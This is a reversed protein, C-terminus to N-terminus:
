SSMGARPQRGTDGAPPSSAGAQHKATALLAFGAVVMLGDIVLPGVGAALQGYGWSLLVAHIHGYSIAASGLAVGVVGGYRALKWLLGSPWRVRSLAEVALLLTIPWVAAGAQAVLSPQWDTPANAPPIRSALVNGAVSVLSGFVFGTWAVLKGGTDPEAPSGHRHPEGAPALGANRTDVPTAAPSLPAGSQHGAAVVDRAQHDGPTPSTLAPALLVGSPAGPQRADGPLGGTGALPEGAPLGDSPQSTTDHAAIEGPTALAPSASTTAPALAPDTHRHGPPSAGGAVGPDYPHHPIAPSTVSPSTPQAEEETAVMHLAKKIAHDTAGTLRILTPRGPVPRGERTAAHVADRVQTLLDNDTRNV